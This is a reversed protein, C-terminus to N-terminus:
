KLTVVTVGSEGEGYRGLRYESVNKNTKLYDWVGKKLKGTGMGHIIRIEPINSVIAQDIFKEVEEM